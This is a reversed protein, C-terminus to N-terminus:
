NRSTVVASSRCLQPELGSRGVAPGQEKCSCSPHNPLATCNVRIQQFAQVDYCDGGRGRLRLALCSHDRSLRKGTLCGTATCTPHAKRISYRANQKQILGSFLTRETGQGLPGSFPLSAAPADELYWPWRFDCFLM